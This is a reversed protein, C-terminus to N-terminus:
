LATVNDSTAPFLLGSAYQNSIAGTNDIYYFDATVTEGTTIKFGCINKYSIPGGSGMSINVLKDGIDNQIDGWSTYQTSKASIIVLNFLSMNLSHKYLKTGASTVPHYLYYTNIDPMNTTSDFLIYEITDIDGIDTDLILSYQSKEDSLNIDVSILNGDTDTLQGNIYDFFYDNTNIGVIRLPFIHEPFILLNNEEDYVIQSIVDKDAKILGKIHADTPIPTVDTSNYVWGSATKDYSVTEVCSADTYTLCIGQGDEKYSVIYAHKQNGTIKLVIDGAQLSNIQESTLQTISSTELCEVELLDAENKLRSKVKLLKYAM